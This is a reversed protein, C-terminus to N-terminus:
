LDPAGVNQAKKFVGHPDFQKQITALRAYNGAYYKSRWGALEPDLYNAYAGFTTGKMTNTIADVMGNLFSTGQAPWTTTSSAYFQINWHHKRHPYATGDIPISSITSDGGGWLEFQVFWSLSTKTKAFYTALASLAADTLPSLAPVVLSKAFFTVHGDPTGETSLPYGGNVETLAALWSREQVYTGNPSGTAQLLSVSLLNFETLTGMYYGGIEVVQGGQWVNAEIGLEKPANFGWTQYSSLLAAFKDPSLDPNAFSYSYRVVSAPAPHTQFTYQTIVGFSPAAGRIAWFLDPHKTNSAHMVTGNALVLDAGVVQDIMLGWNRSAFGWGGFGTHGGIGVYPCVGHALARGYKNDLELAVDGLRAGPQVTATGDSPQYSIQAMDRFMIVLTGNQSGYGSASYSHGGSLPSVQLGFKVACQIAKSVDITETPYVIANPSYHFRTNFPTTSAPWTPNQSTEIKLGQNHLCSVLTSATAPSISSGFLLCLVLAFALM